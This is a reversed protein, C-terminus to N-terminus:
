HLSETRFVMVTNKFWFKRSNRRLHKTKGSDYKWGLKNFKDIIYENSRCNVHKYGKQGPVAWSLIIGEKAANHLNQIYNDEFEAPIHEGVELSLVWDFKGVNHVTALDLHRVFDGTAEEIGLAGDYALVFSTVGNRLFYDSYQGVGAGLDVVTKGQFLKSLEIKLYKDLIAMGGKNRKGQEICFGGTSSAGKNKKCFNREDESIPLTQLRASLQTVRNSLFDITNQHKAFTKLITDYGEPTNGCPKPEDCPKPKDCPKPEDCSPPDQTNLVYGIGIGISLVLLHTFYFQM